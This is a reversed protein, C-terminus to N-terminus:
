QDEGARQGLTLQPSLLLVPQDREHALGAPADKVTIAASTGILGYMALANFYGPQLVYTMSTTGSAATSTYSDFPAWRKTPRKELWYATDVEPLATRGSSAQVCEYVRHTTTRIREQGVTYTGASVWATESADPEAITTGALIMAGTITLPTLINM